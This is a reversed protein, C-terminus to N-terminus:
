RADSGRNGHDGHMALNLGVIVKEADAMDGVIRRTPPPMEKILTPTALVRDREALDPQELVDIISLQYRGSLREECVRRLNAVAYHSRATQGAIYLRLVFMSV